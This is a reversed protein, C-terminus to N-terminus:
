FGYYSRPRLAGSFFRAKMPTRSLSRLASRPPKPVFSKIPNYTIPWALLPAYTWSYLAQTPILEPAFPGLQLCVQAGGGVGPSLDGM